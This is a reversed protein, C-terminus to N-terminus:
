TYVYNHQLSLSRARFYTYPGQETFASIVQRSENTLEARREGLPADYWPYAIYRNTSLPGHHQTRTTRLDAMPFYWPIKRNHPINFDTWSSKSQEMTDALWPNM